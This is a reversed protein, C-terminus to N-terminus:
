GEQRHAVTGRLRMERKVSWVTTHSRYGLLRSIERESLGRAVLEMIRQKRRPTLLNPQIRRRRRTQMSHSIRAVRSALPGPSSLSGDASRERLSLGVSVLAARVRAAIREGRVADLARFREASWRVADRAYILGHRELRQCLRLPLDLDVLSRELPPCESPAPWDNDRDAARLRLMLERAISREGSKRHLRIRRLLIQRPTPLLM